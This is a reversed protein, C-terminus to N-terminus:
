GGRRKHGGSWVKKEENGDCPCHKDNRRVFKVETRASNRARRLLSKRRKCCTKEKRWSRINSERSADGRERPVKKTRGAAEQIEYSGFHGTPIMQNKGAREKKRSHINKKM